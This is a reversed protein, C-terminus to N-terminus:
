SKNGIVFGDLWIDLKRYIGIHLLMKHVHSFLFCRLMDIFIGIALVVAVATVTYIILSAMNDPKGIINYLWGTWEYRIAIHEHWLYVGLMYPSIRCIIRSVKSSKIKIHCFTYFLAVSATLVLIHNYEYCIDLINELKGTQFFIFRLLFTIGFICGASAIYILASRVASKFFPIGYLRIYAAIIFICLYWICDYGNMDAELRFPIVSKIVSLVCIMLIIVTQLQRKTLRKIGQSLIPSFLYMYIYATMFWYHNTSVPLCLQLLYYVSFGEKPVYGASLAAIGIGISYFWLQLILGLLRRVKFRSEIMFYGSLMMYANVAVIAFAEIGWALYYQPTFVSKSFRPM